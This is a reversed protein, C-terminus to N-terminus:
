KGIKLNEKQILHNVKIIKDMVMEIRKEVDSDGKRKFSVIQMEQDIKAYIKGKNVGNCILAICDNVNLKMIEVLDVVRIKKFFKSIVRFNHDNIANLFDEKLTEFMSSGKLIDDCISFDIIEDGKFMKILKRAEATNDKCDCCFKLLNDREISNESLISFFTCILIKESNENVDIEYLKKSYNSCDEFLKQGLSVLMMYNYFDVELNKDNSESFFSKRIRKSIIDCRIWDKNYLCLKLTELQYLIKDREEITFTEVPVNFIVDLADKFNNEEEYFKQLTKTVLIRENELYFKGEIIETLLDKSFKIFLNKDQFNALKCHYLNNINTKLSNHIQGKRKTLLRLYTLIETEDKCNLLIQSIISTMADEDKSLRAQREQELLYDM